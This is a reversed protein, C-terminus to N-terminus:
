WGTRLHLSSFSPGQFNRWIRYVALFLPLQIKQPCTIGKGAMFNSSSGVDDWGPRWPSTVAVADLSPLSDQLLSSSLRPRIPISPFYHGFAWAPTGEIGMDRIEKMWGWQCAPRAPCWMSLPSCGEFKSRFVPVWQTCCLDTQMLNADLVHLALQAAFSPRLHCQNKLSRHFLPLHRVAWFCKNYTTAEWLLPVLM